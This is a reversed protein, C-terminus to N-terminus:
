KMMRNPRCEDAVLCVDKMEAVDHVRVVSAGGIIAATTAAASGWVRNTPIEQGTSHGIFRKRSVGVLVPMGALCTEDATLRDLRYLIEYNQRYDKAFGIGPDVLINWRYVGAAIANAVGTSLEHRIVQMLDGSYQTMSMMTKSNGRMHMLCVPIHSKAMVALMRPDRSGGSVDNILDAGAEIAAEAVGARFTDVSIPITTNVQRIAKIVPIVRAIEEEETIEPRNPATSQGGIDLIDARAEVMSLANKVADDLNESKGGDSFSDPTVNLIGMVFTRENFDWTM